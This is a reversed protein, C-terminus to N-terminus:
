TWVCDAIGLGLDVIRLLRYEVVFAQNKPGPSRQMARGAFIALEIPTSSYQLIPTNVFAFAMIEVQIQRKMVGNSLWEM